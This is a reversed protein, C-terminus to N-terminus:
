KLLLVKNTQIYNQTSIRVIYIGNHISNGFSDKGDWNITYDGSLQKEAVLKRLKVGQLNLISVEVISTRHIQYSISTNSRFPNPHIQKLTFDRQVDEELAAFSSIAAAEVMIPTEDIILQNTANVKDKPYIPMGEDDLRSVFQTVLLQETAIYSSLDITLNQNRLVLGQNDVEFQNEHWLLFIDKGEQSIKYAYVNSTLELTEIPLKAGVLMDIFQKVAYYVPKRADQMKGTTAMVKADILGADQWFMRDHIIPGWTPQLSIAKQGTALGMMLKRLSQRVEDEHYRKRNNTHQPHDSNTLSEAFDDPYRKPLIIVTGDDSRSWATTRADGVMTPKSYGNKSMEAQLWQTFYPLGTYHDNYNIAFLDFSNEDLRLSTALFDLYDARRMQLSTESPDDDFISAPNSKGRVVLINSDASKAAHYMSAMMRSYNQPNGGYVIFHGVAEPEDGLQLYKIAPTTINAADDNGDADYREVLNLIFDYYAQYATMGWLLTDSDADEKPPSMDCCIEEMESVPVLTAWSNRILINIDFVRGSSTGLEILQDLQTWNYQHVGDVPPNPEIMEWGVNFGLLGINVDDEDLLNIFTEWDNPNYVWFDIGFFDPTIKDQSFSSVSLLLSLLLIFLYRM